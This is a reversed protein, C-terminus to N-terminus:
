NGAGTSNGLHHNVLDAFAKVQFPKALVASAGSRVGLRLNDETQRGSVIIVPVSNLLPDGRLERLTQLGDMVPMELDCLILDPPFRRAMGLAEEGHTAEEVALHMSELLLRIAGRVAEEDDVILVRHM